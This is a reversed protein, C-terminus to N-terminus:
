VAAPGSLDLEEAFHCAIVDRKVLSSINEQGCQEEFFAQFRAVHFRIKHTVAESRIGTVAMELYNDAWGRLSDGPFEPM